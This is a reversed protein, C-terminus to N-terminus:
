PTADMGVATMRLVDIITQRLSSCRIKLQTRVLPWGHSFVVPPRAPDVQARTELRLLSIGSIDSIIVEGFKSCLVGRSFAKRCVKRCLICCSDDTMSESSNVRQSKYEAHESSVSAFCVLPGPAIEVIISIPINNRILFSTPGGPNSGPVEQVGLLRALWAAGRGSHM